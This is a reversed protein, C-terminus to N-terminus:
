STQTQPNPQPQFVNTYEYSPIVVPVYPVFRKEPDISLENEYHKIANELKVLTYKVIDSYDKEIISANYRMDNDNGYVNNNMYMNNLTPTQTVIDIIRNLNRVFLVITILSQALEYHKKKWVNLLDSRSMAPRSTSTQTNNIPGQNQNQGDNVVTEDDRKRKGGVNHQCETTRTKGISSLYHEMTERHRNEHQTKKSYYHNILYEVCKLLATTYTLQASVCMMYCKHQSEVKPVDPTLGFIGSSAYFSEKELFKKLGDLIELYKECKEKGYTFTKLLNAVREADSIFSM